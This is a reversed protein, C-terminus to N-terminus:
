TTSENNTGKRELRYEWLFDAIAELEEETLDEMFIYDNRRPYGIQRIFLNLNEGIAYIENPNSSVNIDSSQTFHSGFSNTYEFGITSNEREM